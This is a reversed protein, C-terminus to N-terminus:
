LSMELGSSQQKSKTTEVELEQANGLKRAMRVQTIFQSATKDEGRAATLDNWDTLGKAKDAKNLPPRVVYGGVAQAAEIAKDMGKNPLPNERLPLHHDDDAAFLMTVDPYKERMATAVKVMNDGDFTVIVPKNTLKHVSAGTAYGEAFVLTDGQGPQDADNLYREPDIAHFLGEKRGHRLYHKDEGVFQLSHIKLDTDRLPVVMRADKDLKVGFGLVKKRQLYECNSPKAWEKLNVWIGYATKAAKEQDLKRADAREISAKKGAEIARQVEGKSLQPGEFTWSEQTGKFNHLMGNPVAGDLFGRYSANKVKKEGAIAIRHWKGDMQALGQLDMGQARIWDSFETQPDRNQAAKPAKGKVSWKMTAKMIEATPAFWSRAKRDFRAGLKKAAEREGYPVALYTRERKDRNAAESLTGEDAQRAHPRAHPRAPAKTETQAM